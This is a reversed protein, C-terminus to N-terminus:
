AFLWAVVRSDQPLWYHNFIRAWRKEHQLDPHPSSTCSDAHVGRVAGQQSRRTRQLHDVYTSSLGSLWNLDTHKRNTHTHTHTHASYIFIYYISLYISASLSFSFSCNALYLSFSSAGAFPRCPLANRKRMEVFDLFVEKAWPFPLISQTSIYEADKVYTCFSANPVKYEKAYWQMEPREGSRRRHNRIAEKNEERFKIDEAFYEFLANTM